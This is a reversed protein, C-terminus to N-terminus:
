EADGSCAALRDKIASLVMMKMGREMWSDKVKKYLQPLDECDYDYVDDVTVDEVDEKLVKSIEEKLYQRWETMLKKM